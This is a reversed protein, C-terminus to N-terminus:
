GHKIKGMLSKYLSSSLKSYALAKHEIQLSM